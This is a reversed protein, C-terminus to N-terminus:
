GSRQGDGTMRGPHYSSKGKGATPSEAAFPDMLSEKEPYEAIPSPPELKTLFKKSLHRIHRFDISASPGKLSKLQDATANSSTLPKVHDKSSNGLEINALERKALTALLIISTIGTMVMQSFVGIQDILVCKGDYGPADPMMNRIQPIVMMTAVCLVLYYAARQSGSAKWALAVYGVTAHALMWNIGFLMLAFFRAEGPRKMSVILDRSPSQTLEDSSSSSQFAVTSATDFSSIIFSATDTLTVLRTVPLPSSTNSVEVRINLTLHYTDFPYLRAEHVDLVHDSDFQYLNQVSLRNTNASSTPIKDPDYTATATVYGDVYINLPVNPIGCESSDHTGESKPLVYAQGCALISWRITVAPEDVDVDVNDGILVIGPNHQALDNLLDKFVAEEEAGIFAFSIAGIFFLSIVVAIGVIFTPGLPIVGANVRTKPLTPTSTPLVLNKINKSKTSQRCTSGHHGGSEGRLPQSTLYTSAVSSASSSSRILGTTSLFSHRTAM